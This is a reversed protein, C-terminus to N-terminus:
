PEPSGSSSRVFPRTIHASIEFLVNKAYGYSVARPALRRSQELETRRAQVPGLQVGVALAFLVGSVGPTSYLVMFM